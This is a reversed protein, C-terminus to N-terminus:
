LGALQGDIDAILTDLDDLAQEIEQVESETLGGAPPATAPPATNPAATTVPPPPPTTTAASPAPTPVTTAPVPATTAAVTGITTATTAVVISTPPAGGPRTKSGVTANGAEVPANADDDLVVPANPMNPSNPANPSLAPQTTAPVTAITGLPASPPSVAEDSGCAALSAAVTLAFGAVRAACTMRTM